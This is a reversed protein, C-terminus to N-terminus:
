NQARPEEIIAFYYYSCTIYSTMNVILARICSKHSIVANQTRSEAALCRSSCPNQLISTHLLISPHGYNVNRMGLTM